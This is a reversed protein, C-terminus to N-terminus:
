GHGDAPPGPPHEEDQRSAERPDRAGHEHDVPDQQAPQDRPAAEGEAEQALQEPPGALTEPADEDVPRPVATLQREPFQPVVRLEPPPRHPEDVVVGPLGSRADVGNGDEAVEVSD